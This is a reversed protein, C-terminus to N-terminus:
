GDYGTTASAICLVAAFFYLKKLSPSETWKVKPIKPAAAQVEAVNKQADTLRAVKPAMIRTDLTLVVPIAATVLFHLLSLM